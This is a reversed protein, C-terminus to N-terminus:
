LVDADASQGGRASPITDGHFERLLARIRDGVDLVLDGSEVEEPWSERRAQEDAEVGDLAEGLLGVLQSEREQLRHLAQSAQELQCHGCADDRWVVTPEECTCLSLVGIVSAM